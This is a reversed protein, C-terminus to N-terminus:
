KKSCALKWLDQNVSGPPVPGWKDKTANSYVVKGRGMNGSFFTGALRRTRAETCDYENQMKFSLHSKGAVHEATKFDFLEWMKVRDGKRRITDPNAYTTMGDKAKDDIWMWEAYGPGSSLFLLTILLLQTMPTGNYSIM